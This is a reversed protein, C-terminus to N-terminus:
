GRDRDDGNRFGTDRVKTIGVLIRLPLGPGTRGGKTGGGRKQESQNVGSM